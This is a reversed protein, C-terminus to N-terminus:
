SRSRRMLASGQLEALEARHNAKVTEMQRQWELEAKALVYGLADAFADPLTALMSSQRATESRPLSLEASNTAEM